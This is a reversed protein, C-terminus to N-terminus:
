LAERDRTAIFKIGNYIVEDKGVFAGEAVLKDKIIKCAKKDVVIELLDRSRKLALDVNAIEYSYNTRNTKFDPFIEEAELVPLNDQRLTSAQVLGHNRLIETSKEVIRVNLEDVKQIQDTAMTELREVKLKELAEVTVKLNRIIPLLSDFREVALAHYDGYKKARSASRELNIRSEVDTLQKKTVAAIILNSFNFMKDQIDKLIAKKQAAKVDAQRKEEALTALEKSYWGLVMGKIRDFEGFVLKKGADCAKGADWFPQKVEKFAGEALEEGTEIDKLLDAAIKLSDRNRVIALARKELEPLTLQSKAVEATMRLQVAGATILAPIETKQEEM